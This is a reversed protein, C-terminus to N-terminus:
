VSMAGHFLIVALVAFIVSLIVAAIGVRGCRKAEACGENRARGALVTGIVSLILCPWPLAVMGIFGILAFFSAFDDGIKQADSLFGVALCVLTLGLLALPIVTLWKAATFVRNNKM